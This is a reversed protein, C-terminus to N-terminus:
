EQEIARFRISLGTEKKGWPDAVPIEARAPLSGLMPVIIEAGAQV